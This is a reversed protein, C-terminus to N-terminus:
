KKQWTVAQRMQGSDILPKSSGKRAITLPANPPPVGAAIFKQVEGAFKAGMQALATELDIEGKLIRRLMHEALAQNQPQASDFWARIFSREPVGLGFENIVAVELVTLPRNAHVGHAEAHEEAGAQAHIGITVGRPTHLSAVRSVFKRYGRDRTTVKFKTGM